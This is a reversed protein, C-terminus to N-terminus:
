RSRQGGHGLARVARHRFFTDGCWLITHSGSQPLVRGRRNARFCFADASLKPRHWYSRRSPLPLNLTSAPAEETDPTAQASFFDLLSITYWRGNEIGEFDDRVIYRVERTGIDSEVEASFEYGGVTGLLSYRYATRIVGEASPLKFNCRAQKNNKIMAVATYMLVDALDESVNMGAMLCYFGNM